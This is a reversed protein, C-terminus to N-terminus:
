LGGKESATEEGVRRGDKGSGTGELEMWEGGTHELCQGRLREYCM